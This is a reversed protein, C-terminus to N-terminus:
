LLGLPLRLVPTRLAPPNPVAHPSSLSHALPGLSLPRPRVNPLQELFRIHKEGGSYFETQVLRLLGIAAGKAADESEKWFVDFTTGDFSRQRWDSADAFSLHHAGANQSAYTPDLPDGPLLHALLLVPFGKERLRIATTLGVCGAGLVIVPSLVHSM